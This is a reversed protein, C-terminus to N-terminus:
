TNEYKTQNRNLQTEYFYVDMMGVCALLNNILNIQYYLYYISASLFVAWPSTSVAKQITKRGLNM